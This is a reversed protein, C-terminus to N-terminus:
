GDVVHLYLPELVRFTQCGVFVLLFYKLLKETKIIEVTFYFFVIGKIFNAIGHQIVSGPWKAFPIELLSYVILVTLVTNIPSPQPKESVGSKNFFIGIVILALLILDFRITGLAPMRATFHLFWSITFVSYLIFLTSGPANVKTQETIGM